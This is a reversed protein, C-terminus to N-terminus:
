SRRHPVGSRPEAIAAPRPTRTWRGDRRGALFRVAGILLAANMAVFAYPIVFPAAPTRAMRELWWGGTALALFLAAGSGVVAYFPRDLQTLALCLAIALCAPASWRAVKHSWYAFATWGASPALLPRTLGLAQLNGAGIRVRRRFEDAVTPATHERALATPDYVIRSGGMRVLMPLVFDDTIADQALPRYAARRVAYIGGNAGLVAGVRNELRKLWTEFSWYRREIGGTRGTPVLELQGCVCGVRADGFWRILRTVADHQLLTNADCLVLVDGDAMAVLERVVAPKGRRPALDIVEVPFARDAAARARAVTDDSSGDSGILVRLREWPYDIAQLNRITEAIVASENYASIVVTVSPPTAPAVPTPDPRRRTLLYLLVPYGVYSYLSLGVLAGFLVDGFTTM